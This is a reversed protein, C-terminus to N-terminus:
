RQTSICNLHITLAERGSLMMKLRFFINKKMTSFRFIIKLILCLFIFSIRVPVHTDFDFKYRTPLNDYIVRIDEDSKDRIDSAFSRWPHHITVERRYFRDTMRRCAPMPVIIINNSDGERNFRRQGRFYFQKFFSFMSMAELSAPRNQYHIIDNCLTGEDGITVNNETSVNIFTVNTKFLPIELLTHAIEQASYDRRSMAIFARQIISRREMDPHDMLAQTLKATVGSIKEEKMVYKLLYVCLKEPSIILQMNIQALVMM